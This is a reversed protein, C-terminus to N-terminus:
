PVARRRPTRIRPVRRGRWKHSVSGIFDRYMNLCDDCIFAGSNVQIEHSRWKAVDRCFSNHIVNDTERFDVIGNLTPCFECIYRRGDDVPEFELPDVSSDAFSELTAAALGNRVTAESM